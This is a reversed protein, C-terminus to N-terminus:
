MMMLEFLNYDKSQTMQIGVGIQDQVMHSKM